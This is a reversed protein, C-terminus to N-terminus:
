QLWRRYELMIEDVSFDQMVENALYAIFELKVHTPNYGWRLLKNVVVWQIIKEIEIMIFYPGWHALMLAM